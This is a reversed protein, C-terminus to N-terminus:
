KKAWTGDKKQLWAGPASEQYARRAYREAVVEVTAGTEAALLAFLAQRDANEATLVAQVAADATAGAPVALLGSTTEGLTGAAKAATIAALRSDFAVKLEAKDAAAVTALPVVAFVVAILLSRLLLM